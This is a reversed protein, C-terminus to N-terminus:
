ELGCVVVQSARGPTFLQCKKDAQSRRWKGTNPSNGSPTETSSSGQVCTPSSAHGSAVHLRSKPTEPQHYVPVPSFSEDLLLPALACRLGPGLPASCHGSGTLVTAGVIAGRSECSEWLVPEWASKARPPEGWEAGAGDGAQRTVSELLLGIDM